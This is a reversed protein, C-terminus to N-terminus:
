WTRGSFSTPGNNFLRLVRNAQDYTLGALTVEPRAYISYGDTIDTISVDFRTKGRYFAPRSALYTRGPTLTLDHGAIRRTRTPQTATPTTM